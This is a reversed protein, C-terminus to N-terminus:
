GGVVTMLNQLINIGDLGVVLAIQEGTVQVIQVLTQLDLRQQNNEIRSIASRDICLREALEEQSWGKRTRLAKVIGGFKM